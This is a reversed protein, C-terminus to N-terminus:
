DPILRRYRRRHCLLAGGAQAPYRRYESQTQALCRGGGGGDPDGLALAHQHDGVRRQAETGIRPHPRRVALPLPRPHSVWPRRIRHQQGNFIVTIPEGNEGWGWINVPQNRQLVMNDGFIQPLRVDAQLMSFLCLVVLIYTKM